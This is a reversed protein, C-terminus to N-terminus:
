ESRSRGPHRRNRRGPPLGGAEARRDHCRGRHRFPPVNVPPALLEPTVGATLAGFGDNAAVLDGHRDVIVAPYPQHGALIRELATRVPGLRPDGFHTEPYAPADGAALLLANRERLPVELSEALRVVM